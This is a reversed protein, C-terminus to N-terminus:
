ASVETRGFRRVIWRAAVVTVACVGVVVETDEPKIPIDPTLTRFFILMALSLVAIALATGTLHSM